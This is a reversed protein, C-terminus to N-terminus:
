AAKPLSSIYEDLRFRTSGVFDFFEVACGAPEDFTRTVVALMRLPEWGDPSIAIAVLTAPELTTDCALRCGVSSLDIATCAVRNFEPLGSAETVVTMESPITVVFRSARRREFPNWDVGSLSVVSNLGYKTVETVTADSHAGTNGSKGILSVRSGPRVDSSWDTTPLLVSLPTESEIRVSSVRPSGGESLVLTIFDGTKFM